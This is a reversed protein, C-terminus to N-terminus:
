YNAYYAALVIRLELMTGDGGIKLFDVKDLLLFKPFQELTQLFRKLIPYSGIFTFTVNIKGIREKELSIYNYRYSRTSIGAESFTKDLDLRLESAEEGVHYFSNEKLDEIDQYAEQWQAWQTKSEALKAEAEAAAKERGQLREVFLRYSRRQGFSFFILVFLAVLFLFGLLRLRTREKEHLASFLENM